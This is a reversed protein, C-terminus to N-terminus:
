KKISNVPSGEEIYCTEDDYDDQDIEVDKKESV